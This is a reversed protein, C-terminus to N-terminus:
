EKHRRFFQVGSRTRASSWSDQGSGRFRGWNPSNQFFSKGPSKLMIAPEMEVWSIHSSIKEGQFIERGLAFLNDDQTRLVNFIFRDVRTGNM